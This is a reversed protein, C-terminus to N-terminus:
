LVGMLYRLYDPLVEWMVQGALVLLGAVIGALFLAVAGKVMDAVTEIDWIPKKVTIQEGLINTM